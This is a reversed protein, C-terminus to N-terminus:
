REGGDLGAKKLARRLAGATRQDPNLKRDKAMKETDRGYKSVLRELYRREGSSSHRPGAGSLPVSLTNSSQNVTSSIRELAEVVNSDGPAPKSKEGGGLDTVWQELVTEDVEAEVMEGENEDRPEEEEPMEIRLISGNEDRIIKGFGKPISSSGQESSEPLSTSEAQMEEPHHQGELPEVGGSASPNLTHILGLTAYNQRVTKHDDWADQLIKPGRIPPTKKLNRKAHRSHSVPKHSSSRSKRRQRPNAM